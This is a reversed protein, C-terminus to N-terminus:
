TYNIRHVQKIILTSLGALHLDATRRKASLIRYTHLTHGIRNSQVSLSAHSLCEADSLSATFIHAQSRLSHTLSLIQFIDVGSHTGCSTVHRQHGIHMEIGTHGIHSRFIGFLYADIRTIIHIRGSSELLQGIGVLFICCLDALNLLAKNREQIDTTPIMRGNANTHVVTRQAVADHAAVSIRGFTNHLATHLEQADTHLLVELIHHDGYLGAIRHHHHLAHAQEHLHHLLLSHVERDVQSHGFGAITLVSADLAGHSDTGQQSVTDAVGDTHRQTLRGFVLYGHGTLQDIIDNLTLSVDHHRANGRFIEIVYMGHTADGTGYAIDTAILHRNHHGVTHIQLSGSCQSGMLRHGIEQGVIDIASLIQRFFLMTLRRGVDDIGVAPGTLLIGIRGERVVHQREHSLTRGLQFEKEQAIGSQGFLHTGTQFVMRLHDDDRLAIVLVTQGLETGQNMFQNAVSQLIRHDYELVIRVSLFLFFVELYLARGIHTSQKKVAQTVSDIEVVVTRQRMLINISRCKGNQLSGTLAGALRLINGTRTASTRKVVQLISQSTHFSGCRM